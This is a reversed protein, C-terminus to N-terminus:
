QYKREESVIGIRKRTFILYPLHKLIYPFMRKINIQKMIIKHKRIQFVNQRIERM